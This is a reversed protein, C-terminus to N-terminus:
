TTRDRSTARKSGFWVANPTFRLCWRLGTANWRWISLIHLKHVSGVRSGTRRGGATDLGLGDASSQRQPDERSRGVPGYGGNEADVTDAVWGPRVSM